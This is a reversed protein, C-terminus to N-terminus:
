SEENFLDRELIEMSIIDVAEIETPAINITQDMQADKIQRMVGDTLETFVLSQGNAYLVEHLAALAEFAEPEANQCADLNIIFNNSGSDTLEACKRELEAAMNANLHENVPSIQTFIEKTDIKFEM